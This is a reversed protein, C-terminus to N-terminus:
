AKSEEENNPPAEGLDHEFIDAAARLKRLRETRARAHIADFGIHLQYQNM